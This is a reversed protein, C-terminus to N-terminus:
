KWADQWRRPLLDRLLVTQRASVIVKTDLNASNVQCILERCRGCPPLVRGNVSVAVIMAIESERHKLMEAIASHEACFGIGCACDVCVGTHVNGSKTVLAAGVAGSTFDENPKYLGTIESARKILESKTM